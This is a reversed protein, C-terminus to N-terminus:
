LQPQMELYYKQLQIATLSWWIRVFYSIWKPFVELTVLDNEWFRGSRLSAKFKWANRRITSYDNRLAYNGKGKEESCGGEVNLMFFFFISPLISTQKHSHITRTHEAPSVSLFSFMVIQKNRIKWYLARKLNPLNGWAAM